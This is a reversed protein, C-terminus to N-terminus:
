YRLTAKLRSPFILIDLANLINSVAIDAALISQTSAGEEGMVIIGIKAMEVIQHDNYGNGIAVMKQLDLKNIYNIKAETQNEPPVITILCNTNVLQNKATGHSDGTVVHLTLQKSLTALRQTVGEILVGDLALTGNFDLILDTLQLDGIGPINIQLM